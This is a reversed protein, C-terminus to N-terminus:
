AKLHPKMLSYIETLVRKANDDLAVRTSVPNNPVNASPTNRTVHNPFVGRLQLLFKLSAIGYQQVETILVLCRGWREIAEKKKGAQWLDWVPTYLDAFSAAPMSGASGRMMEDILTIGHAGTHINLEPAKARYESIRPLTVGAEDKVYRLSPVAKSMAIVFDVSMNGISQVFMPLPTARGIERYYDLVRDLNQEGPPPLAVVADAELKEAHRAYKVAEAATPAQVGLVIAPKLKKGEAAVTRMGEMREDVTLAAYESALQPWVAGHVGCRDLFRMEKALTELDLKGGDTFPTQVIPYIGRLAGGGGRAGLAIGCSGAMWLLGRRTLTGDQTM